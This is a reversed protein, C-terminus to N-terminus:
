QLPRVKDDRQKADGQKARELEASIRAKLKGADSEVKNTDVSVSINVKHSAPDETPSSFSFWGRYLGIGVLILLLFFLSRILSFM